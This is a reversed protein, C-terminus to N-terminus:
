EILGEMLDDVDQTSYVFIVNDSLSEKWEKTKSYGPIYKTTDTTTAEIIIDYKKIYFDATHNTETQFLDDYKKQREICEPEVYKLLSHFIRHEITSIFYGHISDDVPISYGSRPLYKEGCAKALEEMNGVYKYLTWASPSYINNESEERIEESLPFYGLKKTLIKVQKVAKEKDWFIKNPLEECALALSDMNGIYKYIPVYNPFYKNNKAEENIEALTPFYGLKKILMKIQRIISKRDWHIRNPMIDIDAFMKDISGWIRYLPKDGCGVGDINFDKGTPNRGEREIFALVLEIVKERTYAM